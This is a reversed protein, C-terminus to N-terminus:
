ASVIRNVFQEELDDLLTHASGARTVCTDLELSPANGQITSGVQASWWEGFGSAGRQEQRDGALVRLRATASETWPVGDHMSAVARFSTLSVLAHVDKGQLVMAQLPRVLRAERERSYAHRTEIGGEGRMARALAYQLKTAGPLLRLAAEAEAVAIEPGVEELTLLVREAALPSRGDNLSDSLHVRTQARLLEVDDDQVYKTWRRLFRVQQLNDLFPAAGAAAGEYSDIETAAIRGEAGQSRELEKRARANQPEAALVNSVIERAERERGGQLRLVAALGLMLVSNGPFRELADEYVREGSELDRLHKHVEALGGWAHPDEPFWTMSSTYQAKAEVLRRSRMLVHGLLNQSGSDEPFREAAQFAKPLAESAGNGRLVSDVLVAWSIANWESWHTAESAWQISRM